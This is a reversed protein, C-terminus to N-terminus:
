DPMLLGTCHVFFKFDSIQKNTSQESPHSFRINGRSYVTVFKIGSACVGASFGLFLHCRHGLSNAQQWPCGVFGIQWNSPLLRFLMSLNHHQMLCIKLKVASEGSSSLRRLQSWTLEMIPSVPQGLFLILLTKSSLSDSITDPSFLRKPKIKSKSVGVNIM